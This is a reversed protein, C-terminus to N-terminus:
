EAKRASGPYAPIVQSLLCKTRCSAPIATDLRPGGAGEHPIYAPHPQRGHQFCDAACALAEAGRPGLRGLRQATASPRAGRPLARDVPWVSVRRPQRGLIALEHRLLLIELEKSREPRSLLVVLQILRRPCISSRGLGCGVESTPSPAFSGIWSGIGSESCSGLKQVRASGSRWRLSCIAHQNPEIRLTSAQWSRPPSGV